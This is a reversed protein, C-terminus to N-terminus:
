VLVAGYFGDGEERGPLRWVESVVRRNGADRLASDLVGENEESELSCTAYLLKGGAALLRLAERLITRQREAFRKFDEAQVRWKIEPNRSLTGTGSCPADVFIRDFTCAFPLPRTADFVVRGADPSVEKLRKHSIDGAICIALPVEAAQLTKNGPASCVDLYRHGPQLDLMPILSQSGIDHLRIGDPLIGEGQPIRFCGDVETSEIQLNPPPSSGFPVRIYREPEELAARAIAEAAASGFHVTWRELLWRPCSLETAKDPWSAPERNVKRLVANVMGSAARKSSKVFEVSEHVAAHPPIRDLYRLQFIGARLALLVPLDLSSARRGSYQEILWDLQGQYRLCGFVIQSALSADRSDVRAALALLTDTAFAGKYVAELAEFALARSPSIRRILLETVLM